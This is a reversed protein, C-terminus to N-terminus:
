DEGKKLGKIGSVLQWIGVGFLIIESFLLNLPAVGILISILFFIGGCILLGGISTQLISLKM